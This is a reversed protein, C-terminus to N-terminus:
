GYLAAVHVLRLDFENTFNEIQWHNNLLSLAFDNGFKVAIFASDKAVIDSKYSKEKALSEVYISINGRFDTSIAEILLKSLIMMQNKPNTRSKSLEHLLPYQLSKKPVSVPVLNETKKM